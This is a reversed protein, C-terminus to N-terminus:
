NEFEVQEAYSSVFALAHEELELLRENSELNVVFVNIFKSGRSLMVRQEASGFDNRARCVYTGFIWSQDTERFIVQIGCM